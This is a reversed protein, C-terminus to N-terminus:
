QLPDPAAHMQRTRELLFARSIRVPIPRLERRPASANRHEVSNQTTM